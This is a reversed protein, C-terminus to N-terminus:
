TCCPGMETQLTSISYMVMLAELKWFAVRRSCQLVSSGDMVSYAITMSLSQEDIDLGLCIEFPLAGELRFPYSHRKVHLSNADLVVLKHCYTYNVEGIGHVM